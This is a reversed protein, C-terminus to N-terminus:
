PCRAAGGKVCITVGGYDCCQDSGGCGGCPCMMCEGRPSYEHCTGDVCVRKKGCGRDCAGCHRPDRDLDICANMCNMQGTTCADQCSGSRCTVMTGAGACSTGERGCNMPDTDLDTCVGSSLTDLEPRCVCSGMVCHEEDECDEGIAGCHGPDVRLDRCQGAGPDWAWEPPCATDAPTDGVSTDLPTTDMPPTTDGPTSDMGTDPVGADDGGCRGDNCESMPCAAGSSADEDLTVIIADLSPLTEDRCGTAIWQCAGDRARGAFGYAGAELNPPMAAAGGSLPIESRYVEAGDCGGERIIGEVYRARARVDGDEFRVGWELGQPDAKCGFVGFFLSGILLLRLSM